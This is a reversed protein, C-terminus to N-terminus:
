EVFRKPMPLGPVGAQASWALENEPMGQLLSELGALSLTRAWWSREMEHAAAARRAEELAAAARDRVARALLAREAALAPLNGQVFARLEEEREALAERAGEWAAEAREDVPALRVDSMGDGYPLLDARLALGGEVERLEAILEGETGEPLELVIGEVVQAGLRERERYFELLRARVREVRRAGDARARDLEAVRERQAGVAGHLRELEALASM